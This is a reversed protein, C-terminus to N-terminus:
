GDICASLLLGLLVVALVFGVSVLVRLWILNGGLTRTLASLPNQEKEHVM